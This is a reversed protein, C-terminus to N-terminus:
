FSLIAHFDLLLNTHAQKECIKTEIGFKTTTVEFGVFPLTESGHEETFKMNKHQKNLIDFFKVLFTENNFFM